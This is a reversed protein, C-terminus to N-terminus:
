QRFVLCFSFYRNNNRSDSIITRFSSKSWTYARDILFFKVGFSRWVSNWNSVWSSGLNRSRDIIFDRWVTNVRDKEYSFERRDVRRDAWFISFTRAGSDFSILCDIFYRPDISCLGIIDAATNGSFTLVLFISCIWLYLWLSLDLKMTFLLSSILNM